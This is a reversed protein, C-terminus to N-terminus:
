RKRRRVTIVIGTGLVVAPVILLYVIAWSTVKSSTISLTDETRNKASISISDKCDCMWGLSATFLSVNYPTVQSYISSDVIASTGFVVLKTKINEEDEESDTDTTDSDGKSEKSDTIAVAVNFPGTADDDTKEYSGNSSSTAANTKLYSSSSTTLLSKVSLTDSIDDLTKISQASPMLCRYNTSTMDETITHTETTPMIYTPNNTGGYLYNRDSELVVGKEIKVGYAKLVADFNKREVDDGLYDAVIIANGGNKLYELIADKELKSFDKEPSIIMLCDADDPVKGETLLNLSEVTINANTIQEKITDDLSVEGNGGLEYVKPLNDTTVYDIANAILGEGNFTYIPDAGYSYDSYNSLSYMDNGDILKYRKDSEVILVTSDTADYKSGFNPYLEPDKKVIKIRGGAEDKYNELLKTLESYTNEATASLLYYITVDEDMKHLLKKSEKGISYLNNGTVDIETYKTPLKSVVLNVVIVLAIAIIIMAASFSGNRFRSGRFSFISDNGRQKKEKKLKAM